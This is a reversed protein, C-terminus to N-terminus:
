GQSDDLAPGKASMRQSLRRVIGSLLRMPGPAGENAASPDDAKFSANRRKRLSPIRFSALRASPARKAAHHAHSRRQKAYSCQPLFPVPLSPSLTQFDTNIGSVTLHSNGM